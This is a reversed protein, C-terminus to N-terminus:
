YIMVGIESVRNFGLGNIYSFICKSKSASAKDIDIGESVAIRDNYLCDNLIKQKYHKNGTVTVIAWSARSTGPVDGSPKNFTRLDPVELSGRPSESPVM